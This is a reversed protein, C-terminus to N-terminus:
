DYATIEPVIVAKGDRMIYRGAILTPDHQFILLAGTELAWRQWVRKSELTILPEVDYATMWGLRAFHISYSALDTVFLAQQGGSELRIVMMGPTHGRAVIGHIGTMIETDGELLRMQGSEVLPQFNVDYYTARTRENPKMADEYERRQVVYQANPFTPLVGTFDPKFVTNGACHDAHLHTNIVLDVAEPQVGHRALSAVLGENEKVVLRWNARAKDNLKNGLGSDIVITKGHARVLLCTMPMPVLNDADPQVFHQFLARPVLGFVGGADVHTTGDNLFAIQMEGLTIM